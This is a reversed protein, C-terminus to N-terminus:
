LNDIFGVVWANYLPLVVFVGLAAATAIGLLKGLVRQLRAIRVVADLETFQALLDPTAVVLVPSWTAPADIIASLELLEAEALAVPQKLLWRRLNIADMVSVEAPKKKVTIPGPSVLALVSRAPALQPVRKRLLKTVRGAEFESNRIYPHRRGSVLFGKDNIWIKKGRHHKTNITFIGGPGLVLHDIDAGAKGIPLAHFVRWEPPLRGLTKGVEIEGLAGLYWAVSDAALPSRGSFRALRSRPPLSQQTRLLEEIVSQAAIHDRMGPTATTM